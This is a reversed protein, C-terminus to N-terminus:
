QMTRAGHHIDHPSPPFDRDARRLNLSGSKVRNESASFKLFRKPESEGLMFFLEKGTKDTVCM